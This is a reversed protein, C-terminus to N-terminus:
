AKITYDIDRFLWQVIIKVTYATELLTAPILVAFVPQLTSLKNAFYANGVLYFVIANQLFLLLLFMYGYFKRATIRWQVDKIREKLLELTVSSLEGKDDVVTTDLTYTKFQGPSPIKKAEETM